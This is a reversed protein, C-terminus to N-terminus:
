TQLNGHIEEALSQVYIQLKRLSRIHHELQQMDTNSLVTFEKNVIVTKRIMGAVRGLEASLAILKELAQADMLSTQTVELCGNLVMGRIYEGQTLGSAKVLMEFTDLEDDSLRTKIQHTRLTNDEKTNPLHNLINQIDAPIEMPLWYINDKIRVMIHKQQWEQRSAESHLNASYIQDDLSLAM